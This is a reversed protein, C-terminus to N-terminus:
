FESCNMVLAGCKRCVVKCKESAVLAECVPCITDVLGRDDKVDASYRKVPELPKFPSNRRKAPDPPM